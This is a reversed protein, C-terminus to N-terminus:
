EGTGGGSSRDGPWLDKFPFFLSDEKEEGKGGRDFTGNSNRRGANGAPWGKTKEGERGRTQARGTQKRV